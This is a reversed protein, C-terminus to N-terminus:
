DETTVRYLLQDTVFDIPLHVELEYSTSQQFVSVPALLSLWHRTEEEQYHVLLANEDDADADFGLLNVICKINEDAVIAPQGSTDIFNPDISKLQMFLDLATSSM